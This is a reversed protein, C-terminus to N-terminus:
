PRRRFAATLRAEPSPPAEVLDAIREVAAEPLVLPRAQAAWEIAALTPTSLECAPQDGAITVLRHGRRAELVAKLFLGVAEDVIQSRSLGLEEALQALALGRSEPLTAEVRMCCRGEFILSKGTITLGQAGSQASMEVFTM